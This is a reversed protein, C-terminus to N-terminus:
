RNSPTLITGSLLCGVKGREGCELVREDLLDANLRSSIENKGKLYGKDEGSRTQERITHRGLGPLPGACTM